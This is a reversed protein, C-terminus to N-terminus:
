ATMAGAHRNAQCGRGRRILHALHGDDGRFGAPQRRRRNRRRGQWRDLWRSGCSLRARWYRTGGATAAPSGDPSGPSLTGARRSSRSRHRGRRGTRFAPKLESNILKTVLQPMTTRAFWSLRTRTKAPDGVSVEIDLPRPNGPSTTVYIIWDFGFHSFAEAVFGELSSLVGTNIVYDEPKAQSLM